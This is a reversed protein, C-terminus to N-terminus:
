LFSGAGVWGCGCMRRCGGGCEVYVYMRVGMCVNGVFEMGM